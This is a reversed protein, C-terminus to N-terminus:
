SVYGEGMKVSEADKTFPRLTITGDLEKTLIDIKQKAENLRKQCEGLLRVGNEYLAISEDLSLNENELRHVIEELGKLAEEFRM